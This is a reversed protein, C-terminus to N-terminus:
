HEALHLYAQDGWLETVTQNRGCAWRYYKYRAPNKKYYDQHYDEADWFAGADLIPTVIPKGLATQAETRTKEAIKRQEEDAVFVATMYAHGRDCFQGGADTPDVTRWYTEMLTEYSVQTDDYVIKAGELHQGHNHYTPNQMEGGTYGSIVERVGPVHEFDSEVCWFCGGAVIATKEEALAPAALAPMLALLALPAALATKLLRALTHRRASM